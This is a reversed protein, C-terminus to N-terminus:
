RGKLNTIFNKLLCKLIHISIEWGKGERVLM